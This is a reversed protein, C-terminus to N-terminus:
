EAAFRIVEIMPSWDYRISGRFTTKHDHRWGRCHNREHMVTASGADRRYYINCTGTTLNLEMCADAGGNNVLRHCIQDVQYSPLRHEIVSAGVLDHCIEREGDCDM